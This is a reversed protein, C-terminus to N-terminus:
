LVGAERASANPKYTVDAGQNRGQTVLIRVKPLELQRQAREALKRAQDENATIAVVAPGWSSQAVGQVGNDRFFRILSEACASAYVSRQVAAFAEGALRNFAFLAEGFAQIDRTRVAPALGRLALQNLRDVLTVDTERRNLREFAEREAAGHLGAQDSPIALVIRWEEPFELREVLPAIADEASKGADVLFGGREFGHIGIASRRGRGTRQALGCADLGQWGWSAALARGVALALQTGSGLGVHEPAIDEVILKHPRVLDAPVAAAFHKAINLAREAQPGEASWSEAPFATLQLGPERIMLGVGGFQRRPLGSFPNILGFHLRSYAQVCIM